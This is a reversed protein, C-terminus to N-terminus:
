ARRRRAVFLGALGIVAGTAPVPVDIRIGNQKKKITSVSGAENFALLQNNFTLFFRTASGSYGRLALETDINSNMVGTWPVLVGADAPLTFMGMNPSFVGSVQYTFPTFPGPGDIQAVTIFASLSVSSWTGAGGPGALTYDGNETIQVLPISQGAHAVIETTLTGDTIDFGGGPANATAGFSVPNFLLTDGAISPSGFLAPPVPDTNSDETVNLYDVTTGIRNGHNIPTAFATGAVMAVVGTCLVFQKSM